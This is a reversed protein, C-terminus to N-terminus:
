GAKQRRSVREESILKAGEFMPRERPRGQPPNAKAYLSALKILKPTLRPYAALIRDESHGASVSAAVDYVPIRTGKIVPAGGLTEPSSTVIKRADQYQKLRKGTSVVFPNLDIQLFGEQVVWDKVIPTWVREIPKNRLRGGVVQIAQLREESTLRKASDHYFMIFICAAASVRRGQTRIIFGEPIIKRDIAHNVDRLEVGSVVAAETPKLMEASEAIVPNQIVRGMALFIYSQLGNEIIFPEMRKNVNARM